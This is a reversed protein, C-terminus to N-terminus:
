FVLYGLVLITGVLLFLLYTRVAGTQFIRLVEGLIRTFLGLGNVIGDIIRADVVKFLFGKSAAWIPQVVAGEYIADVHFKACLLQYTSNYEKAIDTPLHPEELYFHKAVLIWCIAWIVSSSSLVLELLVGAHAVYPAAIRDAHLAEDVFQGFPNWHPFGLVGLTASGAALLWVVSVMSFPSEHIQPQVSRDARCEGHFVAFVLRFMYFATMGAVIFGAAWLFKGFAGHITSSFAALLIEDKSFFGAFPAIGAIAFGAILFTWYTHPMFARLGGMKRIDQEGGLGHIVSGACLFLCAKFFAHTFLHFIGASYAGVGVAIFMYGLQSITSYALIKKIDNQVLAMSAAVLATLAGISAVVGMAVPSLSYLFGMRAVLYVGATVMTAAHILASVPTPGAMADPLWVYLPIQASKGCAGLFLLLGALTFVQSYSWGAFTGSEVIAAVDIGQIRGVLGVSGDVGHVDLSGFVSFLTLLGLLFGLDGVRNVIFAKKGCDAKETDEWWFAILLYSALGVGEWGLFLLVLSDAMVLTTMFFMFLNMYAYFRAYGKDGSMYGMSYIHILTGVGTVVLLMVASLQDVYFTVEVSLDGSAFWRYLRYTLPTGGSAYVSSFAHWSFIFSLIPAFCGVWTVAGEPGEDDHAHRLARLGNFLAGLLVFLPILALYPTTM